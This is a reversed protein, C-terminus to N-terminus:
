DYTKFYIYSDFLQLAFFVNQFVILTIHIFISYFLLIFYGSIVMYLYRLVTRFYLKSKTVKGTNTQPHFRDRQKHREQSNVHVLRLPAFSM